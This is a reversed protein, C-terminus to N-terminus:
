EKEIKSNSCDIPKPKIKISFNPKLLLDTATVGVTMGLGIISFFKITMKFQSM